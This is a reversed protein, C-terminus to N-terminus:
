ITKRPAHSLFDSSEADQVNAHFRRPARSLPLDDRFETYTILPFDTFTVGEWWTNLPAFVQEKIESPYHLHAYEINNDDLWKKLAYCEAHTHDLTTYLCVDEIKIIAM